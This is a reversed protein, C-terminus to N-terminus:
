IHILSLELALFIRENSYPFIKQYEYYTAGKELVPLQISFVSYESELGERIPNMVLPENPYLGRGHLLLIPQGREKINQLMIFSSSDSFEIKVLDSDFQEQVFQETLNLERLYNPKVEKIYSTVIFSLLIFKIIM